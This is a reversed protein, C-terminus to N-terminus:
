PAAPPRRRGRLCEGAPGRLAARILRAVPSTLM